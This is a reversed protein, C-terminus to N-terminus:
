SGEAPRVPAPRDDEPGALEHELAAILVPLDEQVTKWVLELDAKFYHHVLKNRMGVIDGWPANQIRARRESPVQAAAEGVVVLTYIVALHTRTDALFQEKEVGECLSLAKQSYRLMDHLWATEQWM